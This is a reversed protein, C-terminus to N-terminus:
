ADVLAHEPEPGAPSSPAVPVRRLTLRRSVRLASFLVGLVLLTEAGGWLWTTWHVVKGPAKPAPAPEATIPLTFTAPAAADLAVAIEWEGVAPTYYGSVRYAGDGLATATAHQAPVGLGPSAFSLDVQRPTAGGDLKVVYDILGPQMGSPTLEVTTAGAQATRTFASASAQLAQNRSSGSLMSAVGLLAVLLGVEVAIAARFHRTVSHAVGGRNGVAHQVDIRPMLWFQNSAGIAVLV